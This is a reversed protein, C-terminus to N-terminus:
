SSVQSPTQRICSISGPLDRREDLIDVREDAMVGEICPLIRWLMDYNEVFSLSGPVSLLHGEFLPTVFAFSREHEFDHRPAWPPSDDDCEHSESLFYVLAFGPNLLPSPGDRAHRCGPANQSGGEYQSRGYIAFFTFTEEGVIRWPRMANFGVDVQMKLDGESAVASLHNTLPNLKHKL